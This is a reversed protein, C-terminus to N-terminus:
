FGYSGTKIAAVDITLKTNIEKGEWKATVYAGQNGGLIASSTWYGQVYQTAPSYYVKVNPTIEKNLSMGPPIIDPMRPNNRDALIIGQYVFGGATQGETFYLTKNWDIEVASQSTNNVYLTFSKMQNTISGPSLSITGFPTDQSTSEPNFSYSYRDLEPMPMCASLAILMIFTIIIRKM